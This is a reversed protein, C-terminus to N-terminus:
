RRLTKAALVRKRIADLERIKEAPLQRAGGLCEALFLIQM